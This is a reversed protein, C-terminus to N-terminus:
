NDWTSMDTSFYVRALHKDSAYSLYPRADKGSHYALRINELPYTFASDRINSTSNWPYLFADYTNTNQNIALNTASAFQIVYGSYNGVTVYIANFKQDTDPKEINWLTLKKMYPDANGTRTVNLWNNNSTSLYNPRYSINYWDAFTPLAMAVMMALALLFMPIRKKMTSMQYAELRFSKIPNINPRYKLM